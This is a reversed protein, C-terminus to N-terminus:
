PVPPAAAAIATLFAEPLDYTEGMSVLSDVLEETLLNANSAATWAALFTQPDGQAAQGLGVGLMLHLVPAAQAATAVLTNVAADGAIAAGFAVWQPIVPPPPIAAAITNYVEGDLLYPETSQLLETEPDYTADSRILVAGAESLFSANPGNSSFSTGPWLESASGHATITNGTLIAYNM